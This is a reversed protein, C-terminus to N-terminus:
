RCIHKKFAILVMSSIFTCAIGSYLAGSTSHMTDSLLGAINNGILSAIGGIIYFLGFATGRLHSPTLSALLAAILGETLGFHIGMVFIGTMVGFPKNWLLMLMDASTLTLIGVFLITRKDYRDAMKGAPWSIFAFILEFLCLLIPVAEVSWGSERARLNIFANSFRGMMLFFAVGMVIWFAKPLHGIEKLKWPLSNKSSQPMDKVFCILIYLAFSMPIVACWFVLHYNKHSLYMLLSALIGGAVNGLSYLTQRIGYSTARVESTSLDAILADTPSARIGKSFRDFSRALFIQVVSGATAFIMKGVVSGITGLVILPKRTKWYDSLVGSFFKAAFASFLALSEMFGVARHSAGLVETVFSPTLSCVMFSSMSWFFCMWAIPWVSM